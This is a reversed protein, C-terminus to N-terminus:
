SLRLQSNIRFLYESCDVPIDSCNQVRTRTVPTSFRFAAGSEGSAGVEVTTLLTTTVFQDISFHMQSVTNLPSLHATVLAHMLPSQVSFSRFCSPPSAWPGGTTVTTVILRHFLLHNKKKNRKDKSEKKLFLFYRNSIDWFLM